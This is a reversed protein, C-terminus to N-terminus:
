NTEDESPLEIDIDPVTIEKEETGVDVEPGEVNYEPLEGGDVQVDIDPAEGAEEKTVDCSAMFLLSAAFPLLLLQKLKPKLRFLM